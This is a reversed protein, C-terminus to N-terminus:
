IVPEAPRVVGLYIPQNILERYGSEVAVLYEDSSGVASDLGFATKADRSPALIIGLWRKDPSEEFNENRVIMKLVNTGIVQRNDFSIEIRIQHNHGCTEGVFARLADVVFNTVSARQRNMPFLLFDRIWPDRLSERFAQRFHSAFSKQATSDWQPIAGSVEVLERLINREVDCLSRSEGENTETWTLRFNM